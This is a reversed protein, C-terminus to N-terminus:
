RRCRTEHRGRGLGGFRRADGQSRGAPRRQLTVVNFGMTKMEAFPVLPTKPMMNAWTTPFSAAFSRMESASRLAEIFVVDAGEEVFARCRAM